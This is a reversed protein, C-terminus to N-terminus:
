AASATVECSWAGAAIGGAVRAISAGGGFPIWGATDVEFSPNPVLNTTAADFAVASSAGFTSSAERVAGSTTLAYGGLRSAVQSGGRWLWTMDHPAGVIPASLLSADLVVDEMA